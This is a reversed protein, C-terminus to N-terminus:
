RSSAPLYTMSPQLINLDDGGANRQFKKADMMSDFYVRRNYRFPQPVRSSLEAIDMRNSRQLAGTAELDDLATKLLTMVRAAPDVDSNNLGDKPHILSSIPLTLQAPALSSMDPLINAKQWCNQVATTDVNNWADQALRM